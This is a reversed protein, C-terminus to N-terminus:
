PNPYARDAHAPIPNSGQDRERRGRAARFLPATLHGLMHDSQGIDAFTDGLGLEDLPVDLDAIKDPLICDKCRDHGILRRHLNGRRDLALNNPEAGLDAIHDCDTRIEDAQLDSAFIAAGGRCARPHHRSRLSRGGFCRFGSRQCLTGNAIGELADRGRGGQRSGGCVSRDSGCREPLEGRTSRPGFAFLRQGRRCNTQPSSLGSCVQSLYGASTRGAADCVLIQVSEESLSRPHRSRWAKLRPSGYFVDLHDAQAAPDGLFHRNGVRANGVNGVNLLDIDGPELLKPCREVLLFPVVLRLQRQKGKRIRAM